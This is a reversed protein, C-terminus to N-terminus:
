ISNNFVFSQMTLLWFCVVYKGHVRYQAVHVVEHVVCLICNIADNSQRFWTENLCVTNCVVFGELQAVCVHNWLCLAFVVCLAPLSLVFAAAIM